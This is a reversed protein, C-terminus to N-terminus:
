YEERHEEFDEPEVQVTIHDVAFRDRVLKRIRRLKDLHDRGNAVTVHASMSEMGSTVTWVHLDDVELVGDLERIASRLQDVDIRGPAREMLVAVSEKLLSWSSYVVLLGILVSAIPDAWVWGFLWILGM